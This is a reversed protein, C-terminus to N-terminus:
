SVRISFYCTLGSIAVQFTKRYVVYEIEKNSNSYMSKLSVKLFPNKSAVQFTKRYVVYEIEKNSNSYM